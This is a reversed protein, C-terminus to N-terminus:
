TVTSLMCLVSSSRDMLRWAQGTVVYSKEDERPDESVATVIAVGLYTSPLM